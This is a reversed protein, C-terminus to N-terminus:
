TYMPLCVCVCVVGLCKRVKNQGKKALGRGGVGEGFFSPFSEVAHHNQQFRPVFPHFLFVVAAAAEGGGWFSPCCM